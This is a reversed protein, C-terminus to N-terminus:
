SIESYIGTGNIIDVISSKGFLKFVRIPLNNEEALTVAPMDMVTLNEHRIKKFTVKELKRANKNKNPDSSYIGDVLTAKLVMDADIELARIVAALDTSNFPNGTGAGFIVVRKKELHRIARRRIFPEAVAAIALATQVRTAIAIKELEIQLVLANMTTALMGIYDAAAREDGSKAIERGRFFNGGGVVIAVEHGAKVVESIKENVKNITAIDIGTEKNGALAEGSLKIVVRAM